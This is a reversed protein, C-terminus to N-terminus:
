TERIEIGYLEADGTMDDNTVDNADRRVKLRFMDGAVVSDMGSGKAMAVTDETILSATGPADADLTAPTAQFSDADLDTSESIVREFAFEWDVDGTTQDTSSGWWIHITVGTTNAYHQPMIGSFVAEEDADADFDLCPRANRLDLTAPISAPPENHLPTFVVLTDGSAMVDGGM